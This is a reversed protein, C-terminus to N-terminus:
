GDKAWMKKELIRDEGLEGIGTEPMAQSMEDPHLLHDLHLGTLEQRNYGTLQCANANADLCHYAKNFIVIAEGPPEGPWHFASEIKQFSLDQDVPKCIFLYGGDAADPAIAHRTIHVATKSFLSSIDLGSLDQLRFQFLRAAAKNCATIVFSANTFLAAENIHQLLMQNISQIPIENEM